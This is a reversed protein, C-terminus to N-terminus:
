AIGEFPVDIQRVDQHKPTRDCWPPCQVTVEYRNTRRGPINTGLGEQIYVELEGLEVLRALAEQVKRPHVNAYRALTSVAPWAGRDGAHNAIGLLVVKATGRAKSHHFVVSLHEVSM